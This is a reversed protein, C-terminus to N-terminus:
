CQQVKKNNSHLYTTLLPVEADTIPILCHGYKHNGSQGKISIESYITYLLHMCVNPGNVHLVWYKENIVGEYSTIM